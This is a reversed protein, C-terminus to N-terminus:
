CLVKFSYKKQKFKLSDRSPFPKSSLSLVIAGTCHISIKDMAVTCHNRKKYIAVTNHISDLVILGIAVTCHEGVLGIAATCYIAILGIAETCHEGMM